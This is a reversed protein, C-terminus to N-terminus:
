VAGTEFENGRALLEEKVVGLYDPDLEFGIFERAERDITGYAAHGIGLFPDMVVSQGNRGHLAICRAALDDPFTAPHPREKARRTITKYPIFWTNTDEAQEDEPRFWNNGRCKLDKGGTGGWRAINSKDAYPIGVDLRKLPTNGHPTLHFIYEHCDNVFRESNIPKYHGRQKEVGDAGPLAISKIWHITNQLKFVGKEVLMSVVQHPILPEKLSGGINLFLSGDDKLCRRVERAWGLTWSLYDERSLSDEYSAYKVGINYPPSTVVIDVTGNPVHKRMGIICDGQFLRVRTKQTHIM